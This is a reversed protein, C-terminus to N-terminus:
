SDAAAQGQAHHFDGLGEDTVEAATRRVDVHDGVHDQRAHRARRRGVARRDPRHQDRRHFALAIGAPKAAPRVAAALQMPGIM